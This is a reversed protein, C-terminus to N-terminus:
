MGVSTRFYYFVSIQLLHEEVENEKACKIDTGIRKAGKRSEKCMPKTVTKQVPRKRGDM